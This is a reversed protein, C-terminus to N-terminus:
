TNDQYNYLAQLNYRQAQSGLSCRKIVGELQKDHKIIERCEIRIFGMDSLCSMTKDKNEEEAEFYDPRALKSAYAKIIYKM